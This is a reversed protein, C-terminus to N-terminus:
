ETQLIKNIVGLLEKINFPKTVYAKFGAAMGREIDRKMANASVAIVAIDETDANKQLKELAEYGSMGPLNIDMLILDPHETEALDLGLSANPASIIVYPTQRDIVQTVVKLNAPNDEIYLITKSILAKAALDEEHVSLSRIGVEHHVDEALSIEVWFVTGKGPQSELGVEGHMLEILQKTIVLGIGTGEIDTNDAGIREFPKFLKEIQNPKIGPGTDSVSVRLKKESVKSCSLVVSGGAHNYKVANSILNLIVQKFRTYDAAIICPQETTIQDTIKIDRKLAMPAVLKLCEGLLHNLNVEEISVELNGSEIKSLDLIENILTLLHQGAKYIEDINEKAQEDKTDMALLQSFGLIANMPTRLEHSMSSLFESKAQNAIEAEEKAQQYEITRLEVRRELEDNTQQLQKEFQKRETIDEVSSWIFDEGNRKVIQGHLRVPVRHGHAHIYEKEYPGYRGTQQLLELQRQEDDAYSEPTLDWYTLQKLEDISRGLISSYAPNIDVLTGDMKTLALGIPLSEVLMRNLDESDNLETELQGRDEIMTNFSTVLDAVEADANRLVLKDQNGGKGYCAMWESLQALPASIRRGLLIALVSGFLTILFSLWSIDAKTRGILERIENKNVGIHLQARLGEILPISNEYIEGNETMFSLNSHHMDHSKTIHELLFRPFGKEFTHVFLKGNFDTIYAYELAKDLQVITKLQERAHLANGNITDLSIGEAITYTLTKVWENQSGVLYRHLLIQNVGITTGAFLISLLIVLATIKVSLKM